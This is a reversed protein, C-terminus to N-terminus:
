SAAHGFNLYIIFLIIFYFFLVFSQLKLFFLLWM